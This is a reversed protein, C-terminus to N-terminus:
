ENSLHFIWLVVALVYWWGGLGMHNLLLVAIFLTM